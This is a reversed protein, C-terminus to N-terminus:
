KSFVIEGGIITLVVDCQENLAVLDARKGAEISGFQDAIGLLQAPNSSAMRAVEVDSVGLSKMLRVADLMSIVSGAISGAGNSTRGQTVNITEGWIQYDGDGLGTAAIADSILSLGAAGKLKFLVQLMRQDLHVGDAIVDCTVQDHFLGWAIPGPTRHHLPAMANMFHTMHHAGAAFAEELLDFSARTHGISVIWGQKVLEKVLAIGGEIEPAVTTLHAASSDRLRPLVDLDDSTRFTKFFQQQLAGCQKQSVFPGEYHVGAVRAGTDRADQRSMFQDIVAISRRYNAESDPVFTPLWATVGKGALFRGVIELGAQDTNNTDVGM